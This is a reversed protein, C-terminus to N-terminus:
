GALNHTPDPELKTTESILSGPQSSGSLPWGTAPRAPNPWTVRKSLELYFAKAKSSMNTKQYLILM